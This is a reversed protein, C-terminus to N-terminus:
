GRRNVIVEAKAVIVGRGTRFGPQLTELILGEPVGSDTREGVVKHILPDVYDLRQAQFRLAGLDALMGDIAELLRHDAKLFAGLTRIMTLRAVVGEQRAEVLEALLRRLSDVSSELATDASVPAPFLSEVLKRLGALESLIQVTGASAPQAVGAVAAPESCAGGKKAPTKAVAAPKKAKRVDVRKTM